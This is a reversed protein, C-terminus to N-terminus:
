SCTVVIAIDSTEVVGTGNNNKGGTVTCTRGTPATTITVNYANGTPLSTAFNSSVTSGSSQLQLSENKVDSANQLTVSTGSALGTATVNVVFATVCTVHINRIDSGNRGVVGTPNDVTCYARLPQALVTVTYNQEANLTDPFTFSDSAVVVTQGGNIQLTMATGATLGSVTGSVKALGGGGCAVLAWAGVPVVWAKKM